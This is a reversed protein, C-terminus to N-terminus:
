CCASSISGISCAAPNLASGAVVGSCSALSFVKGGSLTEFTVWVLAVGLLFFLGVRFTQNTNNM